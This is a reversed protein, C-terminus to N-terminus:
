GLARALFIKGSMALFSKKFFVFFPPIARGSTVLLPPTRPPMGGPCECYWRCRLFGRAFCNENNNNSVYNLGCLHTQSSNMFILGACAVVLTFFIHQPTVKQRSAQIYHVEIHAKINYDKDYAQINNAKIYITSKFTAPKSIYPQIAFLDIDLMGQKNRDVNKSAIKDDIAKTLDKLSPHNIITVKLVVIMMLIMMSYTSYIQTNYKMDCM